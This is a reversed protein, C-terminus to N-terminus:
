GSEDMKKEGCVGAGVFTDHCIRRWIHLSWNEFFGLIINRSKEYRKDQELRKSRLGHPIYGSTLEM